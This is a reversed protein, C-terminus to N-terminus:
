HKPNPKMTYPVSIFTFHINKTEKHLLELNNDIIVMIGAFFNIKM